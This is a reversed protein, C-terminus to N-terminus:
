AGHGEGEDGHACLVCVEHPLLNHHLLDGVDRDTDRPRQAIAGRDRHASDQRVPVLGLRGAPRGACHAGHPAACLHRRMHGAHRAPLQRPLLGLEEERAHAGVGHPLRPPPSPREHLQMRGAHRRVLLNLLLYGSLKEKMRM